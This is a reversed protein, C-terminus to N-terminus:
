PSVPRPSLAASSLSHAGRTWNLTDSFDWLPANRRTSNTQTTANSIGAQNLGLSFGAQDAVPGTFMASNINSSFYTTGGSLGVRAENVLRQSLTSRLAVAGSFIHKIRSGFNPFGPFAPDEGNFIDKEFFNEQYNYSSELHHKENLNFDLRLTPFYRNDSSDNAFTFRQLNPDSSQQIGGKGTTSNRIDALLKEIVPDVTSTQGRSSALDLLNVQRVQPQDNVTVNYRFIGKQADPSLITRPRSVQSPFRFEKYNVFFFARNRGDFGLPGFLRKPLIIPGGVRFGYQNFLIRDRPAKCKERDFSQQPTGCILGTEKHVPDLNRNNFWYNANLSPNRHYKYLSGHFQNGGQRTVYKIQIAGQGSSEAGPTATSITVEEIADLRADVRSYFGDNAKNFNDQVNISDITINLASQPLGNITSNRATTPTNM